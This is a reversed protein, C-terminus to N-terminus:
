VRSQTVLRVWLTRLHPEHLMEFRISFSLLNLPNAAARHVVLSEFVLCVPFSCRSVTDGTIIVFANEAIAKMLPERVSDIPLVNRKLPVIKPTPPEPKSPSGVAQAEVPKDGKDVPKSDGKDGAAGADAAEVKSRKSDRSNEESPAAQANQLAPTETAPVSSNSATAM